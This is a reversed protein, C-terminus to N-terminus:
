ARLVREMFSQAYSEASHSLGFERQRRAVEPGYSSLADAVASRYQGRAAITVGPQEALAEIPTTVVRLGALLYDYTKDPHSQLVRQNRSDYPILGVWARSVAEAFSPGTLWGLPEVNDPLEGHWITRAAAPDLGVLLLHAPLMAVDRLLQEDLYEWDGGVYLLTPVDDRRGRFENEGRGCQGLLVVNSGPHRSRMVQEVYPSCCFIDNAWSSSTTSDVFDFDDIAAYIRRSSKLAAALPQLWHSQLVVAYDSMGRLAAGVQVTAKCLVKGFQRLEGRWADPTWLQVSPVPHRALSYHLARFPRRIPAVVHLVGHGLQALGWALRETTAMREVTWHSLFVFNM